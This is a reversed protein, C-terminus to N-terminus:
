NIQFIAAKSIEDYAKTSHNIVKSFLFILMSIDNKTKM